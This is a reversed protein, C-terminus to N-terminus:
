GPLARIVGIAEQMRVPEGPQGVAHGELAHELQLDRTGRPLACREGHDDEVDVAQAADAIAFAGADSVLDQAVDRRGDGVPDAEEIRHGAESLVLEHDDCGPVSAPHHGEPEAIGDGLQRGDALDLDLM